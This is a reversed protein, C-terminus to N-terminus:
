TQSGVMAFRDQLMILIEDKRWNWEDPEIGTEFIGSFLAEFKQALDAIKTTDLFQPLILYGEEEFQKKLDKNIAVNIM